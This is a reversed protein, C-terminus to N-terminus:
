GSVRMVEEPSTIGLAAKIVASKQLTVMSLNNKAYNRIADASASKLVLERLKENMALIEVVGIRGKYGINNCRECGMAKYFEVKADTRVKYKEYFFDPPTTPTKCHPCLKRM